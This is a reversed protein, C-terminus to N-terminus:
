RLHRSNAHFTSLYSRAPTALKVGATTRPATSWTWTTVARWTPWWLSRLYVDCARFCPRKTCNRVRTKVYYAFNAIYAGHRIDQSPPVWTGTCWRSITVNPGGSCFSLCQSFMVKRCSRKSLLLLDIIHRLLLTDECFLELALRGVYTCM